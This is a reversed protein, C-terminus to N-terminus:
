STPIQVILSSNQLVCSYLSLKNESSMIQAPVGSKLPSPIISPPLSAHWPSEPPGSTQTSSPTAVRTPTVEQPIPHAYSPYGPTQDETASLKSQIAEIIGVIVVVVVVVVVVVFGVSVAVIGDEAALSNESFNILQKIIIRIVSNQKYINFM